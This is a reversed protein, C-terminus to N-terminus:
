AMGARFYVVSVCLDCQGRLDRTCLGVECISANLTRVARAFVM